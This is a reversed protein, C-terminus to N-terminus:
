KLYELLLSLANKLVFLNDPDKEKIIQDVLFDSYESLGLLSLSSASLYKVPMKQSREFQKKLFEISRLDKMVGLSMLVWEREVHSSSKYRNIILNTHKTSKLQALAYMASCRVVWWRDKIRLNLANLVRTKGLAMTASDRTSMTKCLSWAILIKVHAPNTLTSCKLKHLISDVIQFYEIDNALATIKIEDFKIKNLNISADLYEGYSIIEAIRQTQKM